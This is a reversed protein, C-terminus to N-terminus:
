FYLYRRTVHDTTSTTTRGVVTYCTNLLKKKKVNISKSDGLVPRHGEWLRFGDIHGDASRTSSHWVSSWHLPSDLHQESPHRFTQTMGKNVHLNAKNTQKNRANTDVEVLSWSFINWENMRLSCAADNLGLETYVHAKPPFTATSKISSWEITISSAKIHLSHRKTQKGPDHKTVEHVAFM